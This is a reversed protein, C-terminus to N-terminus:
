RRLLVQFKRMDSAILIPPARGCNAKRTGGRRAVQLLIVELERGLPLFFIEDSQGRIEKTGYARM